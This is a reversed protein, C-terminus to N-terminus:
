LLREDLLDGLMGILEQKSTGYKYTLKQVPTTRVIRAEKDTLAGEQMKRQVVHLPVASLHPVHRWAEQKEKSSRVMHDFLYHHWFYAPSLSKRKKWYADVADDWGSILESGATAALFWNSILRDRGPNSFAFFGTQNFMMTLWDDLPERCLLTADIWVGGFKNLLRTRLVDAYHATQFGEPLGSRDVVENASDKDLTIVQWDPNLIRWSDVCYRCIEPANEIGSDWFVYINRNLEGPDFQDFGRMYFARRITKTAKL